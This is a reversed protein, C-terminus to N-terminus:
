AVTLAAEKHKFPHKLPALQRELDRMGGELVVASKRLEAAHAANDQRLGFRAPDIPVNEQLLIRAELAAFMRDDARDFLTRARRAGAAGDNGAQRAAKLSGVLEEIPGPAGCLRELTLPLPRIALVADQFYGPITKREEDDRSGPM